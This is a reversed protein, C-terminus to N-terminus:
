AASAPETLPEALEALADSEHRAPAAVRKRLLGVLNAFPLEVLLHLGVAVLGTASAVALFSFGWWTESFSVRGGRRAKFMVELVPPHVLYMAYTLKALPEWLRLELVRGIM